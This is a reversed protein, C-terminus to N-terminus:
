WAAFSDKGTITISTPRLGLRQRLEDGEYSVEGAWELLCNSLTFTIEDQGATRVLKFTLDRKTANLFDLALDFNEWVMELEAELEVSLIVYGPVVGSSDRPLPEINNTGSISISRAKGLTTAGWQVTQDGWKFPPTTPLSLNPDTYTTLFAIDKAAFDLSVDVLGDEELSIEWDSVIAGVVREAVSGRVAEITMSPLTNGLTVTHTYPAASGTNTVSGLLFPLIRGDVLYFEASPRVNRGIFLRAFYGRQGAYIDEELLELGADWSVPIGMTAAPAAATGYTTEKGWYLKRVAYSVSM